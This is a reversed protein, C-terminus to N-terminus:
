GGHRCSWSRRRGGAGSVATATFHLTNLESLSLPGVHDPCQCHVRWLDNVPDGGAWAGEFLWLPKFFGKWVVTIGCFRCDGVM